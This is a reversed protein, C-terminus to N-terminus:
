FMFAPFDESLSVFGGDKRASARVVVKATSFTADETLLAAFKSRRAGDRCRPEHLQMGHLRQRERRDTKAAWAQRSRSDGSTNSALLPGDAEPPPCVARLMKNSEDGGDRRGAESQHPRLDAFSEITAGYTFQTRAAEDRAGKKRGKISPGKRLLQRAM